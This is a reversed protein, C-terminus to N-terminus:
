RELIYSLAAWLVAFLLVISALLRLVIGPGQMATAESFEQSIMIFASMPRM